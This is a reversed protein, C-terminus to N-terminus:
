RPQTTPAKKLKQLISLAKAGATTVASTTWPGSPLEIEGAKRWTGDPAHVVTEPDAPVASIVLRNIGMPKGGLQLASWATMFQSTQMFETYGEGGPNTIHLHTIKQPNQGSRKVGSVIVWHLNADHTNPVSTPDSSDVPDILVICPVGQEVLAALKEESVSGSIAARLNQHEALYATIDTPITPGDFSRIKADIAHRDCSGNWYKALMATSTTGCANSNGQGMTEVPNVHVIDKPMPMEPPIAQTPIQSFSPRDEKKTAPAVCGPVLM